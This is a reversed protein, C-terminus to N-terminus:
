ICTCKVNTTPKSNENLFSFYCFQRQKKSRLWTLFLCYNRCQHKKCICFSIDLCYQLKQKMPNGQLVDSDENKWFFGENYAIRSAPSCDTSADGLWDGHSQDFSAGLSLKIVIIKFLWAPRLAQKPPHAKNSPKSSSSFNGNRAREFFLEFFGLQMADDFFDLIIIDWWWKNEIKVLHRLTCVLILCFWPTSRNSFQVSIYFSIIVPVEM